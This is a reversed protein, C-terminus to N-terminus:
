SRERRHAPPWLRRLLDGGRRVCVAPRGGRGPSRPGCAVAGPEATRGSGAGAPGSPGFGVSRDLRASAADGRDLGLRVTGASRREVGPRGAAASHQGRLVLLFGLEVIVTLYLDPDDMLPELQTLIDIATSAVAADFPQDQRVLQEQLGLALYLGVESRSEDAAPLEQWARMAYHILQDVDSHRAPSGYLSSADDLRRWYADTLMALLWPVDDDGPQTATLVTQWHWIATDLDSGRTPSGAQVRDLLVSALQRRIDTAEETATDPHDLLRQLESILDDRDSRGTLDGPAAAVEIRDNLAFVLQWLTGTDPESAAARTLLDIACDLDAPDPAPGDAWPDDYREYRLRGIVGAVEPWDPDDPQLLDLVLSLEAIAEACDARAAAVGAVDAPQLSRGAARFREALTIGLLGHLERGAEQAASTVAVLGARAHGVAADLDAREADGPDAAAARDRHARALEAHVDARAPDSPATVALLSTLRTICDALAAPDGFALYREHVVLVAGLRLECYRVGDAGVAMAVHDLWRAAEALDDAVGAADGAAARLQYREDLLETLEAVLDVQQDSGPAAALLLSRIVGIAADLQAADSADNAM